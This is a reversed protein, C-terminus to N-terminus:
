VGRQNPKSVTNETKQAPSMNIEGLRKIVTELVTVDNITNENISKFAKYFDTTAKTRGARDGGFIGTIVSRENAIEAIKLLAASKNVNDKHTKFRNIMKGVGTPVRIHRKDNGITTEVAEGGFRRQQSWFEVKKELLDKVLMYLKEQEKKLPDDETPKPVAQILNQTTQKPAETLRQNELKLHANESKIAESSSRVLELQSKLYANEAELNITQLPPTVTKTIAELETIRDMLRSNEKTKEILRSDTKKKEAELLNFREREIENNRVSESSGQSTIKPSTEQSQDSNREQKSKKAEALERQLRDIEEYFIKAQADAARLAELQKTNKEELRKTRRELGDVEQKLEAIELGQDADSTEIVHTKSKEVEEEVEEEDDDTEEEEAELVNEEEQEEGFYEDWDEILTASNEESPDDIFASVKKFLDQKEQEDEIEYGDERDFDEAFKTMLQSADLKTKIANIVQSNNERAADIILEVLGAEDPEKNHSDM